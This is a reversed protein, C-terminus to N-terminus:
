GFFCGYENSEVVKLFEEISKVTLAPEYPHWKLDSRQWYIKWINQRKIYTTKAVPIEMMEDQNDWRPRVEFIEISQNNIKYSLDVDKRIHLPPRNRELFGEVAKQYKKIEFESFAM